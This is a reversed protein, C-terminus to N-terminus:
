GRGSGVLSSPFAALAEKLPAVYGLIADDSSEYMSPLTETHLKWLHESYPEAIDPQLRGLKKRYEEESRTYYHNIRLRELSNFARIGGLIPYHNEDVALRGDKYAFHHGSCCRATRTPDVISKIPLERYGFPRVYSEIVLGDPKTRHGSPGFRATGVGVAPRDEYDALVQPLSQDTPSFLFEDTDLFAIWRADTRHEALCDDFAPTQPPFVTWEHLVVIGREVYPALLERQTDRDGNNYLFFREV